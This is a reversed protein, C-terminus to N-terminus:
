SQPGGYEAPMDQWYEYLKVKKLFEAWRPDQLLPYFLPEGLIYAIGIDRENFARELWQFALDYEGRWSHVTAVFYASIQEEYDILLAELAANSDAQRGLSHYIIPLAVAKFRNEPNKNIEILARDLNGKFMYAKGMNTYAWHYVPSIELQNEFIQIAKDHQGTKTYALGLASHTSLSLPDMAYKYEYLSVAEDLRGLSGLHSARWGVIVDNNPELEFAKDLDTQAGSWDWFLNKKIFGQQGWVIALDPGLRKAHELANMTPPVGEERTMVGFNVLEAYTAALIAWAEANEADLEVSELFHQHAVQMNEPGRLQLFHVGKLYATYAEPDIGKQVQTKGLLTVKLAESVMSAIEDQMVFIDNLTRDFNESWLHFGDDAKILQATIRVQDGSKRVSGELVHSVNLRSAIESVTLDKDKFSFSSTRAAVRLEPIKVLMNLLEESLGDAFYENSADDSMNVFPLVAISQTVVEVPEGSDVSEVTEQVQVGASELLAANRGPSLVFKDYAFYALAAVLAIIITRDLKSTNASHDTADGDDRRLGEPTMEYAWAMVMAIPFGLLLITIIMKMVWDPAGFSDAALGAIQAILWATIAYAIGARFVNRRKLETLFSM